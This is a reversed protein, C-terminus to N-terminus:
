CLVDLETHIKQPAMRLCCQGFLAAQQDGAVGCIPIDIGKYNWSGFDSSSEKIEPLISSPIELINLLESDWKLEHINCILTRSANSIDTAHIKKNTLKWILWSDITGFLLLDNEAMTKADAVNNLIWNIKTGSFYSDLVLGTKERFLKEYGKNKLDECFSSTRNDQWVIANYIPEGTNKNWIVTTERQNTIGISDIQEFSINSNNIFLFFKKITKKDM